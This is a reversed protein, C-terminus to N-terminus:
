KCIEILPHDLCVIEKLQDIEKQQEQIGKIAVTSLIGYNISYPQGEGDLSVAEPIINITDEAILGLSERGDYYDAKYKFYVPELLNIKELANTLPRVNEKFRLSSTQDGVITETSGNFMRLVNGHSHIQWRVSTAEDTLIFGSGNIDSNPVTLSEIAGSVALKVAPTTTGIGVNGTNQAIAVDTRAYATCGGIETGDTHDKFGIIFNNGFRCGAHGNTLFWSSDVHGNGVFRNRLSLYVGNWGNGDLSLMPTTSGHYSINGGIHLLPSSINEVSAIDLKAGPITTGIGVSGSSTIRMKETPNNSLAADGDTAFILNGNFGTSGVSYIAAHSWQNAVGSLTDVFLLGKAPSGVGDEANSAITFLGLPNTTGIGVNGNNKITMASLTPDAGSNGYLIELIGAGSYD